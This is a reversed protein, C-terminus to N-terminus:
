CVHCLISLYEIVHYIHPHHPPSTPVCFLAIARSSRCLTRAFNLTYQPGSSTYLIPLFILHLTKHTGLKSRPPPTILRAFGQMKQTQKETTNYVRQKYLQEGLLQEAAGRRRSGGETRGETPRSSPKLRGGVSTIYHSRSPGTSTTHGTAKSRIFM